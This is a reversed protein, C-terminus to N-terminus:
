SFRTQTSNQQVDHEASLEGVGRDSGLEFTNESSLEHPREVLPAKGPVETPTPTSTTPTYYEGQGFNSKLEQTNAALVQANTQMGARKRRRMFLGGAAAAIIFVVGLSVGVGIGIKAGSSLGGGGSPAPTSTPTETPETIPSDTPLTSNTSNSELGFIMPEARAEANIRFWPSQTHTSRNSFAAESPVFTFHCSVFETWAILILAFSTNPHAFQNGKEAQSGGNYRLCYTYLKPKKYPSTYTVNVTDLYNFTLGAPPYLFKVGNDNDAAITSTAFFLTALAALPIRVMIAISSPRWATSSLTWNHEPVFYLYSLFVAPAQIEPKLPQVLLSGPLM